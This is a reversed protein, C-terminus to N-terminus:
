CRMGHCLRYTLELLVFDTIYIHTYVNTVFMFVIIIRMKRTIVHNVGRQRVRQVLSIQATSNDGVTPVLQYRYMMSTNLNEHLTFQLTLVIQESIDTWKDTYTVNMMHFFYGALTHNSCLCQGNTGVSISFPGNIMAKIVPYCTDPFQTNLRHQTTM